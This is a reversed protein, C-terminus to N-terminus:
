PLSNSWSSPSGSEFGDDFILLSNTSFTIEFGDGFASDVQVTIDNEEDRFTDGVRFM